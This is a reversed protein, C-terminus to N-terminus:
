WNLFERNVGVKLQVGPHAGIKGSVVVRGKVHVIGRDVEGM